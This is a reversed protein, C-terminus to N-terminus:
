GENKTKNAKIVINSLNAELVERADEVRSMLEEEFQKRVAEATVVSCSCDLTLLFESFSLGDVLPLSVQWSDLDVNEWNIM